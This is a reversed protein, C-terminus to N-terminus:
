KAAVCLSAGAAIARPRSHNEIDLHPMMAYTNATDSSLVAMYALLGVLPVKWTSLDNAVAFCCAVYVAFQAIVIWWTYGFISSCRVPTLYGGIGASSYNSEGCVANMAATGSMMILWGIFGLTVAVVSIRSVADHDM